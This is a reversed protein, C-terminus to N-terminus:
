YSSHDHDALETSVSDKTFGPSAIVIAKLTQLPLHRLIGAYVTAFFKDMAQLLTMKVEAKARQLHALPDNVKEHVSASGM